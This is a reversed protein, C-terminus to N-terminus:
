AASSRARAKAAVRVSAFLLAIAAGIAIGALVLNRKRDYWHTEPRPHYLVVDTFEKPFWRLKDAQQAILLNPNRRVLAKYFPDAAERDKKQLYTGGLYLAHATLPDNDPLLEAAQWLYDAAFPKFYNKKPYFRQSKEVRAALDPPFGTSDEFREGQGPMLEPCFLEPGHERIIGGMAFLHEARTRSPLTEDSSAILRRDMERSLESLSGSFATAARDWHGERAWRRALLNQIDPKRWTVGSDSEDSYELPNEALSDIFAELEECTLVREAMFVADPRNEAQLFARLSKEYNGQKLLAFGTDEQIVVQAAVPFWHYGRQPAKIRWEDGHPFVKELDELLATGEDLKGDRLLLKAQVWQGFPADPSSHGLWRRAQEMNGQQYSLWALHDADEVIGEPHFADLASLWKEAKSQAGPHAVLWATVLHRTLADEILAPDVSDPSLAKSCAFRLNVSASRGLSAYSRISAAYHAAEMEAYAQWGVSAPALDLADAFGESALSRCQQFFPAAKTPDKKTWAKGLMFAAWTSRHARSEAPLELVSTFHVVASDWDGAHYATAGRLYAAFEKPIRSLTEEYPTLDLPEARKVDTPAEGRELRRLSGHFKLERDAVSTWLQIHASLAKRLASYEKILADSDPSDGVASSFENIDVEVTTTHLDQLSESANGDSEWPGTIELIRRCEIAFTATPMQLFDRGGHYLYSSFDISCAGVQQIPVVILLILILSLTRKM